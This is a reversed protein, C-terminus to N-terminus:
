MKDLTILLTDTQQGMPDDSWAVLNPNQTYSAEQIYSQKSNNLGFYIVFIVMILSLTAALPRLNRYLRDGIKKSIGIQQYEIVTSITQWVSSNPEINSNPKLKSAFIVEERLLNRCSDCSDIHEKVLKTERL